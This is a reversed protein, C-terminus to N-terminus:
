HPAALIMWNVGFRDELMGFSPSFFTKALPMTIKGGDALANFTRHAEAETPVTASLMFGSFRETETCHGDTANLTSEGIKITSHM